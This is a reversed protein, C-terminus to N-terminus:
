AEHNSKQFDIWAAQSFEHVMKEIVYSGAVPDAVKGLHSEEKLINSVNLAVRDTMSDEADEGIVTIENAGGVIASLAQFTNKIMDGHPQFKESVYQGTRCRIQLDTPLYDPIEFAQSLQYWLMRMSKLKAINVIINESCTFCLSISRFITRPDMKLDTMEDILTVSQALAATIEKVASSPLVEIGFLHYGNYKELFPGAIQILHETKPFQKWWISGRLKSPTIKKEACAFIDTVVKTDSTKFSITLHDWNVSNNYVNVESHLFRTFDYVIGDAGRQLFLSSKKYAGDEEIVSVEPMNLWTQPLLRNSNAHYSKLYETEKFDAEIYYPSFKLGDVNWFLNEFSINEPIEARAVKQWEDRGVTSFNKYIIDHISPEAM